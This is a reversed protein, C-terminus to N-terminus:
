RGVTARPDLADRLGDGLLNFGLAMLFIAAGPFVMMYPARGLHEGAEALMAGWEATPPQVGLGLFSLASITLLIASLELTGLVVAPGAINPLVHRSATHTGSGGLARSAEVYPRGREVVVAARMVRAYAVWGVAVVAITVQLLGPGMLGTLALALLFAPFALLADITRSIITDTVRGAYGAILALALGIAAICGGAVVTAGISLRAGYLIRSFIDRGLEDTGFLFQRSPPQFRQTLDVADPSHPALLPAGVAALTLLGVIVLGLVATPSRLLGRWRPRGPPTAPRAVPSADLAVADTTSM